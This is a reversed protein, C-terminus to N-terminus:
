RPTTGALLEQYIGDVTEALRDWGFQEARRRTANGYSARRSGDSALESLAAGVEVARRAVLVGCPDAAGELLESVGGVRTSVIPLGCAAAELLALSFAEYNSCCLYIDAGQYYREPEIRRGLFRIADKVGAAKAYAAFRGTDGSGLVWLDFPGNSRAAAVADIAVALGKRDWDGGVFLAVTVGEDAGLEARVEKRVSADSRFRHLDVGNPAEKIAVGPYAECLEQAVQHSVPALLRLRTPRYAWREAGIALRRQLSTNLRRALPSGRPALRGSAAVFGAHCFHVSAVDARNPVLAGCVHVIDADTRRLHFAGLAYFVLFQLPAPRPPLPVRRWKVRGRLDDAINNAIIAFRYRDLLRRVLEAHVREMGGSDDIRHAVVAIRPRDDSADVGARTPLSMDRARSMGVANRQPPSLVTNPDRPRVDRDVWGLGLWVLWAVSYLDGNLWQFLAVTVLGLTALALADRRRATLRYAGGLGRVLVVLYLLLGALGLATGANGIDNETGVGGSGGLRGAALTVSGTGHGIPLSFASKIGDFTEALHGPLSSNKGTPNALGSIDHQLLVGTPYAAASMGTEPSLPIHSLAISLLAVAVVGALLATGLRLGCRAAAMTGLAVVTLVVSTRVSSLVLATGVLGIAGLQLPLLARRPGGLNAVLVVLGISLFAAYEQSSAFTSFARIVGGVNLATYGNSSIWRADWSPFGIFEQLLGYIASFVSLVAILRFLRRLTADDLLARGAWFALMPVLIFLLGGLGVTLGGQLPNVVEILALLSLLAVANALPSRGRLAGRGGAVVFLLVLVTPGVLLLPDGLGTSGGSGVLRRVMGLAVLWFALGLITTRPSTWVVTLVIPLIALALVIHLSVSAALLAGFLVAGLLGLLVIIERRAMQRLRRASLSGLRQVTEGLVLQSLAM